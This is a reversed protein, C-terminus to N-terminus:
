PKEKRTLSKRSSYCDSINVPFLFTQAKSPFDKTPKGTHNHWVEDGRIAIQHDATTFCRYTREVFEALRMLKHANEHDRRAIQRATAILNEVEQICFKQPKSM